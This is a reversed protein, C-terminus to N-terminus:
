GEAALINFEGGANKVAAKLDQLFSVRAQDPISDDFTFQVLSVPERETQARHTQAVKEASAPAIKRLSDEITSTILKGISKISPELVEVMPALRDGPISSIARGTLFGVGFASALSALPYRRVLSAVQESFGQTLALTEGEAVRSLEQRAATAVRAHLAESALETAKDVAASKASATEHSPMGSASHTTRPNGGNGVSQGPKPTPNPREAREEHEM